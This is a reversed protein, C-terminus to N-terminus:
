TLYLLILSIMLAYISTSQSVAQGILMVRLMIDSTEPNRAIGECAEGSPLGAGVGCGIAGMGMCIGASLLAFVQTFSGASFDQFLLLVAIVLAFIGSTEAVAQGVLMFKILEGAVEPQRMIGQSARAATYGEGVGAGIAGFGM